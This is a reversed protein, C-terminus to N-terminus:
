LNWWKHFNSRPERCGRTVKCRLTSQGSGSKLLRSSIQAEMFEDWHAVLYQEMESLLSM